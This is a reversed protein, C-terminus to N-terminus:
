LDRAVRRVTGKVRKVLERVQRLTLLDKPATVSGTPSLQPYLLLNRISSLKICLYSVGRGYPRGKAAKKFENLKSRHAAPYQGHHSHCLAGGASEFAHYACFAALEHINRALSAEAAEIARLATEAYSDEIAV